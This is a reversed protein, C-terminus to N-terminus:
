CFVTMLERVMEVLSNYLQADRITKPKWCNLDLPVSPSSVKPIKILLILMLVHSVLPQHVQMRNKDEVHIDARQSLLFAVVDPKKATVAFKLHNSNM